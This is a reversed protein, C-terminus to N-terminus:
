RLARRSRFRRVKARNGCDRMDCWRRKRNRSTDLFLWGCEEGGCQRLRALDPSTLLDAASRALRWLISDLADTPNEWSWAFGRGSPLLQERARAAKLERALIRWDRAEPKRRKLVAKFIRYLAERVEIARRLVTASQGPRRAAHLAIRRAERSTLLGALRSWELLDQYSSLKDRLVMDAYDRGRPNSRASIRGGVTNVFDLCPRGAIFKVNLM